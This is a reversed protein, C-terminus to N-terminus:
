RRISSGGTAEGGCTRGDVPAQVAQVESAKRGGRQQVQVGEGREERGNSLLPVQLAKRTGYKDGRSM